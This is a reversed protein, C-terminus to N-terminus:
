GIWEQTVRLNDIHFVGTSGVAGNIIGLFIRDPDIASKDGASVISAELTGDLWLKIRAATADFQWSVVVSHWAGVTFESSGADIGHTSNINLTIPDTGLFEIKGLVVAGDLLEMFIWPGLGVLNGSVIYLFFRATGRPAITMTKTLYAGQVGSLTVKASYTGEHKQDTSREISAGDTDVVSTWDAFNATEFDSSFARPKDTKIIGSGLITSLSM